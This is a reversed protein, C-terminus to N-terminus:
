LQMGMARDRETENEFIHGCDFCQFKGAANLAPDKARGTYGHDCNGAKRRVEAEHAAQQLEVMEIDADQITAEPDFGFGNM